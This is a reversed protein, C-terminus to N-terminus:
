SRSSRRRPRSVMGGAREDGFGVVAAADVDAGGSGVSLVALFDRGLAALRASQAQYEQRERALRKREEIIFADATQGVVAGMVPLLVRWGGNRHKWIRDLTAKSARAEVVTKAEEPSLGWEKEVHKRTHTPWQLRVFQALADSTARDLPLKPLKEGKNSLIMAATATM